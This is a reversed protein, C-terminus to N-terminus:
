RWDERVMLTMLSTAGRGKDREVRIHVEFLGPTVERITQLGLCGPVSVDFMTQGPELSAAALEEIRAAAARSAALEDFSRTVGALQGREGVMVSTVIVTLVALAIVLELVTLGKEGPAVVAM